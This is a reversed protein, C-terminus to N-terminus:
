SREKAAKQAATIGDIISQADIPMGDYHLVSQLKTAAEPCDLRLISACQADRNQEVVYIVKHQAIFERTEAGIPLARLRLYNTPLGLEDRLRVRAEELAMDTSGFAIIGVEAGPMTKLVPKPMLTRATDFKRALRDINGKWDKPKESYTAKETHGTGRTFYTGLPNDTGPLTRYCIGDGDVDKYRAFEGLKKLDESSLVKGRDIAKTIPAFPESMWNNMGLDLDLMVFVLTQLREALNLSEAAFEFCEQPSGPLLLPHKCDGHSLHYAKFIDGQCTRTPLGTSPGMRQVDLIVAPIEAFYSLGAFESMLSIGPGATATASRAGAWGAGVVAGISAIEDEAQIVAYTAKGDPDKRFEELYDIANECLSSSPTIPYWALFTLGGFVLGLGAAQNGEIVIKGATKDMRQLKLKPHAPINAKAWEYGHLAAKTNLEAAKVKSGFQRAIAKKLEELDINLLHALVGVYLINVVMKRLRTDPCVPVVLEDFPVVHVLLDTRKVKGYLSKNIILTDGPRMNAVDDEVSEVNMCVVVDAHKKRATWGSHNARVTFWTPLGQINSPFMNKAGTPIGMNFISRMLILNASQSGTGNSTAVSIVVDNVAQPAANPVINGAGDRAVELSM